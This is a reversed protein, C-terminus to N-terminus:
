ELALIGVGGFPTISRRLNKVSDHANLVLAHSFHGKTQSCPLVFPFQGMRM